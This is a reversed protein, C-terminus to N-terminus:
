FRHFAGIKTELVFLMGNQQVSKEKLFNSMPEQCYKIIVTCVIERPKIETTPEGVEEVFIQLLM